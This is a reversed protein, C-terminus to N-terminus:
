SGEPTRESACCAAIWRYVCDDHALTLHGVGPFFRVDERTGEERALGRATASAVSVMCDGLLQTVLHRENAALGGVGFHHAVGRAGIRELTWALLNGAKELPAGRHPSGPLVRALRPRSV